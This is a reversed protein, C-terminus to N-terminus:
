KGNISANKQERKERMNNRTRLLSQINASAAIHLVVEEFTANKTFLGSLGAKNLLACPYRHKRTQNKIFERFLERVRIRAETNSLVYWQHSNSGVQDKTALFRGGALQVSTVVQLTILTKANTKGGNTLSKAELYTGLRAEIITKIAVTGIHCASPGGKGLLVDQLKIGSNRVFLTVPLSAM